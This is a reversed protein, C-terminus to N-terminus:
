IGVEVTVYGAIDKSATIKATKGTLAITVTIATGNQTLSATATWSGSTGTITPYGSYVIVGSTEEIHLRVTPRKTVTGTLTETKPSSASLNTYTWSSKVAATAVITVSCTSHGMEKGSSDVAVCTVSYVGPNQFSNTFNPSTGEAKLVGDIYWKYKEVAGSSTKWVFSVNGPQATVDTGITGEVQDPMTIAFGAMVWETPYIEGSVETTDNGLIYTSVAGGGEKVGNDYTELRFEWAGSELGSITFDFSAEDDTISSAYFTRTAKLTGERVPTVIVYPKDTSVQTTTFSFHVTGTRLATRTITIPVTNLLGTTDSKRLYVTTEGDRVLGGAANYAYVHFKWKGQTFSGFTETGLPGINKEAGNTDGYVYSGDSLTFLAEATYTYLAIDTDIEATITKEQPEDCLFSVQVLEEQYPIIKVVPECSVFLVPTLLILISFAFLLPVTRFRIATKQRDKKENWDARKLM